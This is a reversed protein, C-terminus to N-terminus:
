RYGEFGPSYAQAGHFHHAQLVGPESLRAVDERPRKV